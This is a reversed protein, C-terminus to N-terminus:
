NWSNSTDILNTTGTSVVPTTVTTGTPLTNGTIIINKSQVASILKSPLKTVSTVENDAIVVNDLYDGSFLLSKLGEIKNGYIQLSNGHNSLIAKLFDFVYSTINDFRNNTIIVYKACTGYEEDSCGHNFSSIENSDVVVDTVNECCFVGAGRSGNGTMKNNYILANYYTTGLHIGHMASNEIVCGTAVLGGEGQDSIADHSSNKIVVDRVTLNRQPHDYVVGTTSNTFGGPKYGDLHICSNAWSMPESSVRRGDLTLDHILVGDCDYRSSWSRLLAFSTSVKTGAAYDKACGPFNPQQDSAINTFYIRNGDISDVIAYTCQNASNSQLIFFQDGVAYANANLVDIFPQGKPAATLLSTIAAPKKTITADSGYIEMGSRLTLSRRILYTGPDFFVAKKLSFADLFLKELANTDDTVGDGVAGYDRASLYGKNPNVVGGTSGGDLICDVIVTVDNISVRGDGDVDAFSYYYDQADAKAPTLLLGLLTLVVALPHLRKEKKVKNMMTLKIKM